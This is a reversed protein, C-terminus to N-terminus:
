DQIQLEARRQASMLKLMQPLKTGVFRRIHRVPVPDIADAVHVGYRKAVKRGADSLTLREIRALHSLAVPRGPKDVGISDDWPCEPGWDWM